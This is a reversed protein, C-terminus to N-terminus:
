FTFQLRGQIVDLGDATQTTITGGSTALTHTWDVMLRVNYNPYWNLVTTFNHHTGGDVDRDSLDLFAWRGALEWAGWGGGRRRFPEAVPLRKFEGSGIRYAKARSEGTLSLALAVHASQFDLTSLGAERAISARNYEATMYVPGWAASAEPGYLAVRRVPLIDM